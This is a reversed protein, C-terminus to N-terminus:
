QISLIFRLLDRLPHSHSSLSHQCQSLTKISGPNKELNPLSGDHRHPFSTKCVIQNMESAAFVNCPSFVVHIGAQAHFFDQLPEWLDDNDTRHVGLPIIFFVKLFPGAPLADRSNLLASDVKDVRIQDIPWRGSNDFPEFFYGPDEVRLLELISAM